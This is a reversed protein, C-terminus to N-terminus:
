SSSEASSAALPAPATATTPFAKSDVSPLSARVTKSDPSAYVAGRIISRRSARADVAWKLLCAALIMVLGLLSAQLLGVAQSPVALMAGVLAVAGAFLLAPHRLVPLYILVLGVVLAFGSVVMLIARRAATTCVPHAIEGFSSFLYQNLVEPVPTQKSAGIWHELDAQRLRPVRGWFWGQWEWSLEPVMGPPADLLHEDPPTAVQWFLREALKADALKPAEM